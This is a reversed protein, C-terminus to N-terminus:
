FLRNWFIIVLVALATLACVLVYAALVDKIIKVGEHHHSILHDIFNEVATNILEAALLMGLSVVLLLWEIVSISFHIGMIVAFVTIVLQVRFNPENLFTHFLGEFAHRFSNAHRVPHHSNFIKLMYNNYYM